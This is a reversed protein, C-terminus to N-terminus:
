LAPGCTNLLLATGRSTATMTTSSPATTASAMPLLLVGDWVAEAGASVPVEDATGTDTGVVAVSDVRVLAGAVVWGGTAVVAGGVSSVVDGAM